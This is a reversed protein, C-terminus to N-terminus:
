HLFKKNCDKQSKNTKLNNALRVDKKKIKLKKLTRLLLTM